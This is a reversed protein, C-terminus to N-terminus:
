CGHWTWSFGSSSAQWESLRRLRDRQAAALQERRKEQRMQMVEERKARWERRCSGSTLVHLFLLSFISPPGCRCIRVM